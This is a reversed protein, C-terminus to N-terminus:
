TGIGRRPDSMEYDRIRWKGDELKFRVTSFRAAPRIEDSLGRLPRLRIVANFQAEAIDMGRENSVEVKLNRKIDVNIIEVLGMKQKVDARLKPRGESVHDLIADVNNRELDSAIVHLTATVAERQTIAARELLLLGITLLIVGIAAFLLIKKGTQILGALL